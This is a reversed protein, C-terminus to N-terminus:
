LGDFAIFTLSPPLTDPRDLLTKVSSSSLVILSGFSALYSLQERAVTCSQRAPIWSRRQFTASPALSLPLYRAAHVTPNITGYANRLHTHDDASHLSTTHELASLLLLTLDHLTLYTSLTTHSNYFQSSLSDSARNPPPQNYTTFYACGSEVQQQQSLFPLSLSLSFSLSASLSITSTL